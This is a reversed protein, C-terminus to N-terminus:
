SCCNPRAGAGQPLGSHPQLNPMAMATAPESLSALQMLKLLGSYTATAEEDSWVATSGSSCAWPATCGSLTCQERHAKGAPVHELGCLCVPRYWSLLYAAFHSVGNVPINFHMHYTAHQSLHSQRSTTCAPAPMFPRQDILEQLRKNKLCCSGTLWRPCSDDSSAAM